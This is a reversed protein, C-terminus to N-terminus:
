LHPVYLEFDNENPASTTQQGDHNIGSKWFVGIQRFLRATLMNNMMMYIIVLELTSWFSLHLFDIRSNYLRYFM